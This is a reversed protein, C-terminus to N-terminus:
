RTLFGFMSGRRSKEKELAAYGEKFGHLSFNIAVPQANGPLAVVVQGNMNTQLTKLVDANLPVFAFCGAATCTEYPRVQLGSDGASFGLGADLQVGHPVTISLPSGVAPDNLALSMLNGGTDRLVDSNLTCTAGAQSTPPCIVRWDFFPMVRVENSGGGGSGVLREGLLAILGGVIMLAVAKGGAIVLRGVRGESWSQEELPAYRQQSSFETM